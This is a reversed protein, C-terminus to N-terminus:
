QAGGTIPGLSYQNPGELGTSEPITGGGIGAGNPDVLGLQQPPVIMQQVEQSAQLYRVHSEIYKTFLEEIEPLYQKGSEEFKVSIAMILDKHSDRVKIEPMQGRELMAFDRESKEDISTMVNEVNEMEPTADILADVVPTLDMQVAGKSQLEVTQLVTITNQLSAQRSAPTQKVMAEPYTYVDFNASVVSPDITVLERVGKKGTIAFTQEETVYQANLECFDNGIRKLVQEGFLDLIMQINTEINQSIIQAGRATQNISKSPAGSSYLSSIGGTREFKTSIEQGIRLLSSTTDQTRVPITGSPDGATRIIGNPRWTFMWDPTTAESAGTIWMQNNSSRGNTLIQNLIETGAIGLDGVADVVSMAYYEDDEPFATMDIYPYHGHWYPNERNKNIIQSTDGTLPVYLVDGELTHMCVAPFTASQFTMEDMTDSDMVTDAEYDLVKGTVGYKKLKALFKKDWYEYGYIENDKLMDGVRLQLVELVYPQDMLTPINRNPVLINNFRVFKLDARNILPRMEYNYGDKTVIVRPDYRWGSKYYAKGAIFNSFYGRTLLSTLELENIEWNVFDQNIQRKEFDEPKRAELRVKTMAPNARAIYNRILPFVQNDVLSYDWEYQSDIEMYGKYLNRNIEVKEFVPETLEKAKNYRQRIIDAYKEDKTAM